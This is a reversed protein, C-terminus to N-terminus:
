DDVDPSTFSEVITKPTDNMLYVTFNDGFSKVTRPRKRRMPAESDIKKYIPEPTHEDYDFNESPEPTTDAIVNVFLSSIGYLNKMTFINEFFTVDCSELFKDVHVDYVESKIV